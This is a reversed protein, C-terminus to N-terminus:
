PSDRFNGRSVKRGLNFVPKSKAEIGTSETHWGFFFFSVLELLLLLAGIFAACQVESNSLNQKDLCNTEFLSRQHWWRETVALNEQWLSTGHM